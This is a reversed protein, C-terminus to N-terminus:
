YIFLTFGKDSSQEVYILSTNSVLNLKVYEAIKVIYDQSASSPISLWIDKSLVNALEVIYEISIMQQGVQTYYSPLRRTSWEKDANSSRVMWSSFRLAGFIKIADIFKTGFTQTSTEEIKERLDINTVNPKTIILIIGKKSPLSVTFEFKNSNIMRVNTADGLLTINGTGLYTVVYDGTPYTGYTGLETQYGQRSNVYPNHNFTLPYGDESWSTNFASTWSYNAWDNNSGCPRWEKAHKFKNTFVWQAMGSDVLGLNIGLGPRAQNEGTFLLPPDGQVQGSIAILIAFLTLLM